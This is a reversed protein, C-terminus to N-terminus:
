SYHDSKECKLTSINGERIIDKQFKCVSQANQLFGTRRVLVFM